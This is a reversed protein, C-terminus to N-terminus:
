RRRGGAALVAFPDALARSAFGGQPQAPANGQQGFPAAAASSSSAPLRQRRGVQATAQAWTMPQAKFTTTDSLIVGGNGRQLLKTAPYMAQSFLAVSPASDPLASVTALLRKGVHDYFSVRRQLFDLQVGIVACDGKILGPVAQGGSSSGVAAVPPPAPGFGGAVAPWTVAPPPAGFPLPASVPPPAIALPPNAAPSGAAPTASGSAPQESSFQEMQILVSSDGGAAPITHIMHSAADYFVEFVAASTALPATSPAAPAASMGWGSQYGSTTVPPAVSKGNRVGVFCDNAWRLGVITVTWYHNGASFKNIASVVVPGTQDSGLKTVHNDRVNWMDEGNRPSAVPQEWQLLLGGRRAECNAPKGLCHRKFADYLTLVPVCGLREVEDIHEEPMTALDVFRLFSNLYQLGNSSFAVSGNAGAAGKAPLREGHIGEEPDEQRREINDNDLPPPPEERHRIWDICRKLVCLDSDIVAEKIVHTVVHLPLELWEPSQLVPTNHVRLFQTCADKLTSSGVATACCLVKLVNDDTLLQRIADVCRDLLPQLHYYSAAEIVDIFSEATSLVPPADHFEPAASSAAAQVAEGPTDDNFASLLARPQLTAPVAASAAAVPTAAQASVPTAAQASPPASALADTFGYMFRLLVRFVSWPHQIEVVAGPQAEMM